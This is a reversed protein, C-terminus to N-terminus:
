YRVEPTENSRKPPILLDDEDDNSLSHSCTQKGSSDYGHMNGLSSKRMCSTDRVTNCCKSSQLSNDSINQLSSRCTKNYKCIVENIEASTNVTHEHLHGNSDSTFTNKCSNRRIGKIHLKDKNPIPNDDCTRKEHYSGCNCEKDAFETHHISCSHLKEQSSAISKCTPWEKRHKASDCDCSPIYTSPTFINSECRKDSIDNELSPSKTTNPSLSHCCQSINSRDIKLPIKQKKNTSCVLPSGNFRIQPTKQWCSCTKQETSKISIEMDDENDSTCEESVEKGWVSITGNIESMRVELNGLLYPGCEQIHNKENDLKDKTPEEAQILFSRNLSNEHERYIFCKVSDDQDNTEETQNETPLSNDISKNVPGNQQQETKVNTHVESYKFKSDVIDTHNKKESEITTHPIKYPQIFTSSGLMDTAKRKKSSSTHLPSNYDLNLQDTSNENTRKKSNKVLPSEVKTKGKTINSLTQLIRSSTIFARSLPLALKRPTGDTLVLSDDSNLITTLDPPKISIAPSCASDAWHDISSITSAVSSSSIKNSTEGSNEITKSNTVPEVITETQVSAIKMKCTKNENEYKALSEKLADLELKMKMNEALTKQYANQLNHFQADKQSLQAKLQKVEINEATTGESANVKTFNLNESEDQTTRISKVNEIKLPCSTNSNEIEQVNMMEVENYTEPENAKEQIKHRQVTLEEKQGTNSTGHMYEEYSLTRLNFLTPAQQHGNVLSPQDINNFKLKGDSTNQYEVNCTKVDVSGNQKELKDDSGSARKENQIDSCKNMETDKQIHTYQNETIRINIKNNDGNEVIQATNYVSNGDEDNEERQLDKIAKEAYDKIVKNTVTAKLQDTDNDIVLFYFNKKNM